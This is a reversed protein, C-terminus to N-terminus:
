VSEADIRDYDTHTGIFCVMAIQAKYKFHVILRFENNRINFVVRNDGIADAKGFAALVDAPTKWEAKEVM